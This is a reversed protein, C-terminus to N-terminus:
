TPADPHHDAIAESANVPGNLVALVEVISRECVFDPRIRTAEAVFDKERRITAKV